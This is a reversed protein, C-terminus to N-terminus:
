AAKSLAREIQLAAHPGFEDARHLLNRRTVMGKALADDIAITLEDPALHSAAVDLITRIPTTITVGEYGRIDERPLAARHLVLGPASKRFTPPVTLHTRIPDVDGLEYTSLATDHSIVGKGGSWLVCRILDEHREPPWEPLRFIGRDIRQWNGHDVHYKQAPYSYGAGRAQAATFLGSQHGAIQFLKRRLERRDQVSAM